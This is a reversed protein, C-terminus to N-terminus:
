HTVLQFLLMTVNLHFCRLRFMNAAKETRSDAHLCGGGWPATVHVLMEADPLEERDCQSGAGPSGEAELGHLKASLSKPQTWQPSFYHILETIINM